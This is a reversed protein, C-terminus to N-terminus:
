QDPESEDDEENDTQKTGRAAHVAEAIRKIAALRRDWNAAVRSMEATAADLAEPRVAYLVERGQKRSEVLQARELVALHKSVAQRTVPLDTALASATSEGDALLRDLLRQRTPEGVAVWLRERNEGGATM